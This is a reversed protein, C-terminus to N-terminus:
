NIEQIFDQNYKIIVFKSNLNVQKQKAKIINLLLSKHISKKNIIIYIDQVNDIM